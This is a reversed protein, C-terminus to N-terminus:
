DGGGPFLFLLLLDGGGITLLVGTELARVEACGGASAREGELSRGAGAETRSEARGSEGGLRVRGGMREMVGCTILRGGGGGTSGMRSRAAELADM